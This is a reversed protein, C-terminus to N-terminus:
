KVPAGRLEHWWHLLPERNQWVYTNGWYCWIIGCLAGGLHAAHDFFKWRLLVGLTDLAMIAKIAAGATFSFYPLFIISLRTDPYQMCVFGLVAMIAGSAGLSLGAQSTVAKYLYSSMSSFAGASLYLGLFQEKGLSAVAGSSFSHLVYMNAFLHFASYHSFTSLVMPWCLARSAPNSCFYRVMTPQLHPVRWALFVLCNALCIPIFLRQGETLGNWWTHIQQRWKGQKKVNSLRDRVWGVPQKMINVARMRMNEYQWIAAAGFSATSFVATFCLPKWLKNLHVKGSEVTIGEFPTAVQELRPKQKASRSSFSQKLSTRFSRVLYKSVPRNSFIFSNRGFTAHGCLNQIEGLHLVARAAGM